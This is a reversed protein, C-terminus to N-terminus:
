SMPYVITYEHLISLKFNDYDDYQFDVANWHISCHWPSLTHIESFNLGRPDLDCLKEKEEKERSLETCTDENAM